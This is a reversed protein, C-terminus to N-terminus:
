TSWQTLVLGQEFIIIFAIYIYKPLNSWTNKEENEKLDQQLIKNTM